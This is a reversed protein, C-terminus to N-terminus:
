AYLFVGIVILLDVIVWGSYIIIIPKEKHLIGYGIWMLAISLYASWSFASVGSANKEIWVNYLQPITAIPGFLGVSCIFKDYFRILGNKDPHMDCKIKKLHLHPIGPM